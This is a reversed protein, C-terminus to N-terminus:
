CTLIHESYSLFSIRQKRVCLLSRPAIGGAFHDYLRQADKRNDEYRVFIKDAWLNRVGMIGMHKQRSQQKGLGWVDM